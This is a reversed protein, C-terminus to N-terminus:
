EAVVVVDRVPVTLTVILRETDALLDLEPETEPVGEIVTERDDEAIAESDVDPEVVLLGEADVVCLEIPEGVPDAECLKDLVLVAETDSVPEPDVELENLVDILEEVVAETDTDRLGDCLGKPEAVCIPM